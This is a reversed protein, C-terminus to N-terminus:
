VDSKPLGCLGEAYDLVELVKKGGFESISGRFSRMISKMKEFGASGEFTYSHLTNLCYGYIRYLEELKELLSIGQTAYYSFMECIMSAGNVGDKDRVYSGTLYGYSEEFGFVATQRARSNWCEM